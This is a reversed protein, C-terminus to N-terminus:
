LLKSAAKMNDFWILLEGRPNGDAVAAQPAISFGLEKAPLLYPLRTTAALV